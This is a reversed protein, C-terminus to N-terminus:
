RRFGTFLWAVTWGMAYTVAPPGIAYAAVFLEYGLLARVWFCLVPVSFWTAMARRVLRKGSIRSRARM